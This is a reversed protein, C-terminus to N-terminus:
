VSTIRLCLYGCGYAEPRCQSPAADSLDAKYLPERSRVSVVASRRRSPPLLLCVTGRRFVKVGLESRNIAAQQQRQNWQNSQAAGAGNLAEAARGGARRAVPRQRRRRPQRECEVCQEAGRGRGEGRGRGM